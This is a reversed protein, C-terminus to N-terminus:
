SYIRTYYDITKKLGDEFPTVVQYGLLERAKSIDALSHKVDGPRSAEHVPEVCTKLQENIGKV